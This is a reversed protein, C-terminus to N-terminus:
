LEIIGELYKKAYGSIDVRDNQLKCFVEGGRQSIQKAIFIDKNLVKNWYPILQTFASGTVPDENVGYKPAFFRNVFDYKKSKSTIIIGRNDIDKLLELNPKANIIDNEDEFILIYDMSKYCEIPKTEFAKLINNPIDCKVIEQIPFNMKFKDNDKIVKLIGSKSNFIIENEKYSLIEFIVYASALTAHGCMDVENSPTFWRIYFINNEKIFFATESLNNENAIKQMISDDLWKELPCVGAPNGEFINKAFADIQYLDLKL